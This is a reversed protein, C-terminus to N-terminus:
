TGAAGAGQLISLNGVGGVNSPTYGGKGPTSTWGGGGGKGLLSGLGSAASGGWGHNNKMAQMLILPMMSSMGGLGSGAGSGASLQQLGGGGIGMIPASTGGGASGTGINFTPAPNPLPRGASGESDSLMALLQPISM